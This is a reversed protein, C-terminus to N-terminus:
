NKSGQNEANRFKCPPRRLESPNSRPRQGIPPTSTGFAVHISMKNCRQTPRLFLFRACLKQTNKLTPKSAESIQTANMQHQNGKTDRGSSSNLTCSPRLAYTLSVIHREGKGIADVQNIIETQAVTLLCKRGVLGFGWSRLSRVRKLYLQWKLPKPLGM